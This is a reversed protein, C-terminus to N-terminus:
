EIGCIKTLLSLKRQSVRGNLATKQQQFSKPEPREDRAIPLYKTALVYFLLPKTREKYHFLLPLKGRVKHSDRSSLFHFALLNYRSASPLELVSWLKKQRLSASFVRTTSSRTSYCDVSSNTLWCCLQEKEQQQEWCSDRKPQCTASSLM